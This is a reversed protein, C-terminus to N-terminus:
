ASQCLILFGIEKDTRIRTIPPPSKTRPRRYRPWPVCDSPQLKQPSIASRREWYNLVWWLNVSPRRVCFRRFFTRTSIGNPHKDGDTPSQYSGMSYPFPADFVRDYTSTVQKLIQAFETVEEATFDHLTGLHRRSCILIEFPWVAWFPM